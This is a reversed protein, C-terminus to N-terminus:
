YIKGQEVMIAMHFPTSNGNGPINLDAGNTIMLEAVASHSYCRFSCYETRKGPLIELYFSSPM